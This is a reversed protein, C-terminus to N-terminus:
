YYDKISVGYTGMVYRHAIKAINITKANLLAPNCVIKKTTPNDIYAQIWEDREEQTRNYLYLEYSYNVRDYYEMQERAKTPSSQANQIPRSNNKRCNDSCFLKTSRKPRLQNNCNKCLKPPTANDAPEVELDDATFNSQNAYTM